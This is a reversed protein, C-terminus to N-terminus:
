PSIANWLLRAVVLYANALHHYTRWIAQLIELVGEIEHSHDPAWEKGQSDKSVYIKVTM